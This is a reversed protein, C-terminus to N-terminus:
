DHLQFGEETVQCYSVLYAFVLRLTGYHNILDSRTNKDFTMLFDPFSIVVETADGFRILDSQLQLIFDDPKRINRICSVSSGGTSYLLMYFSMRRGEIYMSFPKYEVHDINVADFAYQQVIDVVDGLVHLKLIERFSQTERTGMTSIPVTVPPRNGEVFFCTPDQLNRWADHVVDLDSRNCMWTLYNLVLVSVSGVFNSIPAFFLQLVVVCTIMHCATAVTTHVVVKFPCPLMHMKRYHVILVVLISLTVIHWPNFGLFAVVILYGMVGYANLIARVIVVSMLLGRIGDIVTDRGNLAFPYFSYLDDPDIEYDYPIPM